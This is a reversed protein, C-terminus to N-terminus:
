RRRFKIRINFQCIDIFIPLDSHNGPYINTLFFDNTGEAVRQYQNSFIRFLGENFGVLIDKPLFSKSKLLKQEVKCIKPFIPRRPNYLLYEAGIRCFYSFIRSFQDTGFM